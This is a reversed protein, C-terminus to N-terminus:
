FLAEETRLPLQRSWGSICLSRFLETLVLNQFPARFSTVLKALEECGRLRTV